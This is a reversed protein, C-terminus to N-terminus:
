AARWSCRKATSRGRRGLATRQHAADSGAGPTLLGRDDGVVHGDPPVVVFRRDDPGLAERERALLRASAAPRPPSTEVSRVLQDRAENRAVDRILPLALAFTVVAVIVGGAM